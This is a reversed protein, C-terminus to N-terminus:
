RWWTWKVMHFWGSQCSFSGKEDDDHSRMVYENGPLFVNEGGKIVWWSLDTISSTLKTKLLAKSSTVRKPSLEKASLRDFEISNTRSLKPCILPCFTPYHMIELSLSLGGIDTKRVIDATATILVRYRTESICTRIAKSTCTKTGWSGWRCRKQTTLPTKANVLPTCHM